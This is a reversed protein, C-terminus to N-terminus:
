LGDMKIADFFRAGSETLSKKAAILEAQSSCFYELGCFIIIDFMRARAENVM